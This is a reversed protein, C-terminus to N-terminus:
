PTLIERKQSKGSEELVMGDVKYKKLVFQTKTATVGKIPALKKSVFDAVERMTKGEILVLFEADGSILYLSGVESYSYIQKAVRDYGREREPTASVEIFASVPDESTKDWNIVTHYGCIIQQSELEDLISQTAEASEKIVTALDTINARADQEIAKLLRIKKEM